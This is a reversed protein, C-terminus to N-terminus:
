RGLFFVIFLFPFLESAVLQQNELRLSSALPIGAAVRGGGFRYRAIPTHRLSFSWVQLEFELPGQGGDLCQCFPLFSAHYWRAHCCRVKHLKAGPAVAASVHDAAALLTVALAQTRM